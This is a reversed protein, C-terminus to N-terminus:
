ECKQRAWMSKGIYIGIRTFRGSFIEKVFKEANFYKGDFDCEIM